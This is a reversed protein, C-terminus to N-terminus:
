SERTWVLGCHRASRLGRWVVTEVPLCRRIYAFGRREIPMRRVDAVKSNPNAAQPALESLIVLVSGACGSLVVDAVSAASAPACVNPGPQGAMGLDPGPEKLPM